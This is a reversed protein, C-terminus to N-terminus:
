KSERYLIPNSPYIEDDCTWWWCERNKDSPRVQCTARHIGSSGVEVVLYPETRPQAHQADKWGLEKLRYWADWLAKVAAEETPMREARLTKAAEVRAMIEDAEGRTLPEHRFSGDENRFTKHGVIKKPDSM